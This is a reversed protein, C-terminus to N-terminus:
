PIAAEYSAWAEHSEGLTIKLKGRFRTAFVKRMEDHIYKCLFETTTLKGKMPPYDDLNKYNLPKLVEELNKSAIDINIVMNNGDLEKTFFEADVIYTAGHLNQAPGFAPSNLSHAILIHKRIKISYM